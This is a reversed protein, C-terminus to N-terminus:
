HHDIELDDTYTAVTQRMKLDFRGIDSYLRQDLEGWEILSESRNLLRCLRRSRANQSQDVHAAWLLLFFWFQMGVCPSAELAGYIHHCLTRRLM